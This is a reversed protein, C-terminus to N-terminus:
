VIRIEHPGLGFVVLEDVGDPLLVAGVESHAACYRCAAEVGDIYFATSLADAEAGTPAVVTASAIGSAPWGSRPDLVHGLKKGNYELHQFTAASTGLARDRLRLTALRRDPKWPHTVGIQWGRSDGAPSGLAVVSSYGGHLLASSVGRQGALYQALRDLAYGKGIAGLNIELGPRRFRVSKTKPDLDMFQMGVRGLAETREEESPVRRPGKFFGWVKTLAGAMIDFAGNTEAHIRAALRLLAFLGDEVSVPRVSATENLRSVESDDRYVTLQAELDDLLDFAGSGIDMADPTGYPLCIEFTTAMARRSLRLLQTETGLVSYQTNPSVEDLAGLLQGAARAVNRLDLLDRRHM